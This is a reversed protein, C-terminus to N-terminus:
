EPEIDPAPPTKLWYIPDIGNWFRSSNPYTIMKLSSESKITLFSELVRHRSGKDERFQSKKKKQSACRRGGGERTVVPTPGMGM